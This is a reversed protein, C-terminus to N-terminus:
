VCVHTCDDISDGRDRLAEGELHCREDGVGQLVAADTGVGVVPEFSEALYFVELVLDGAFRLGVTVLL